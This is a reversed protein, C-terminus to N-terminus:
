NHTNYAYCLWIVTIFWFSATVLLSMIPFVLNLQQNQTLLDANGRQFSFLWSYANSNKNLKWRRAGQILIM